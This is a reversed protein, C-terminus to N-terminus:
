ETFSCTASMVYYAAKKGPNGSNMKVKTDPDILHRQGMDLSVSCIAVISASHIEPVSSEDYDFNLAIRATSIGKIVILGSSTLHEFQPEQNVSTLALEYGETENPNGGYALLRALGEFAGTEIGGTIKALHIGAM